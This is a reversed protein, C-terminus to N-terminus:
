AAGNKPTQKLSKNSKSKFLFYFIVILVLVFLEIVAICYSFLKIGGEFYYTLGFSFYNVLFTMIGGIGLYLQTQKFSDKEVLEVKDVISLMCLSFVCNIILGPAAISASLITLKGLSLTEFQSYSFVYLALYCPLLISIVVTFLLFLDHRSFQKLKSLEDLM